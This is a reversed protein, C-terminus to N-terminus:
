EEEESRKGKKKTRRTHEKDISSNHDGEKEEIKNIASKKDVDENKVKNIADEEGNKNKDEVDM